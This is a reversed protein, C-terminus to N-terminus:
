LLFLGLIFVILCIILMSLPMALGFLIQGAMAEYPQTLFDFQSTVFEMFETGTTADAIAVITPTVYYLCGVFGAIVLIIGIIRKLCGM